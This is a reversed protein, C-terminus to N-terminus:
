GFAMGVAQKWYIHDKDDLVGKLSCTKLAASTVLLAGTRQQQPSPTEAWLTTAHLTTLRSTRALALVARQLLGPSSKDSLFM